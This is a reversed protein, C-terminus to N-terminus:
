QRNDIPLGEMRKHCSACLAILNPLRHAEKDSEFTRYPAIHHVPLDSGFRERHEARSLECRRCQEGDRQIARERQAPWLPGYNQEGGKWLPHNNGSPVWSSREPVPIGHRNIWVLATVPPCGCKAAIERTTLGDELYWERMLDSDRLEDFDPYPDTEIGHDKMRRRVTSGSCGFRDAIEPVTMDEHVYLRRLAEPDRLEPAAPEGGSPTTPINHRKLWKSVVAVSGGIKEAVERMSLEQALYLEQLVGENRWPHEGSYEQVTSDYNSM